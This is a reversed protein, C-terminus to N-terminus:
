RPAMVVGTHVSAEFGVGYGDNEAYTRVRPVARIRVARERVALGHSASSRSWVARAM